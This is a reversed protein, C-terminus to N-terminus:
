SRQVEKMGQFAAAMQLLGEPSEVLFDPCAAALKERSHWGWTVAATRVGARRAERIDGTTDGIYLTRERPIGFESLAHAIKEKKSHLFDSGFIGQFFRDFGFRVLMRRITESGNSSVVALINGRQLLELVPALGDFPKMGDYDIGPLREKVAESFAALDVGQTAMSEYFNGEFLALYDEKSKVIPTGIRALSRAVVEAYLDLSDALVGDFDFLLLNRRNM